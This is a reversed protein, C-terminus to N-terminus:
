TMRTTSSITNRKTDTLAMLGDGYRKLKYAQQQRGKNSLLKGNTM